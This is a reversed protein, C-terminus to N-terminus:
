FPRVGEWARCGAGRSAARFLPLFVVLGSGKEGGAGGGWPSSKCGPLVRGPVVFASLVCSAAECAAGGAAALVGRRGPCILLSPIAATTTVTTRQADAKTPMRATPGLKEGPGSVRPRRETAATTSPRTTSGCNRLAGANGLPRSHHGM